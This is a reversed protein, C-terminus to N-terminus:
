NAKARFKDHCAGCTKGTDAFAATLAALDGSGAAAALKDYAANSAASAAEFGKMDTWIAPLAKTEGKDSGAPFMKVFAIELEKLKAAQPM